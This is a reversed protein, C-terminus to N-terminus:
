CGSETWAMHITTTTLTKRNSTGTSTTKRTFLAPRALAESDTHAAQADDQTTVSSCLATTQVPPPCVEASRRWGTTPPSKTGKKRRPCTTRAKEGAKEREGPRKKTRPFDGAGSPAISLARSESEPGVSVDINRPM